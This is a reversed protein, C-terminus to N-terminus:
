QNWLVVMSCGDLELIVIKNDFILEQEQELVQELYPSPVKMQETCESWLAQKDEGKLATWANRSAVKM